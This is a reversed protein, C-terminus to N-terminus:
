NVAKKKREKEKRKRRVDLVGPTRRKWPQFDASCVDKGSANVVDFCKAKQQKHAAPLYGRSTTEMESVLSAIQCMLQALGLPNDARWRGM